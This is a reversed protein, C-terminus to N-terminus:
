LTIVKTLPSAYGIPKVTYARTHTLDCLDGDDKDATLLYPVENAHTPSDWGDWLLNPLTQKFRAVRERIRKDGDNDHNPNLLVQPVLASGDVYKNCIHLHVGDSDQEVKTIIAQNINLDMRDTVAQISDALVVVINIPMELHRYDTIYTSRTEYNASDWMGDKDFLIPRSPVFGGFYSAMFKHLNPLETPQVAIFVDIDATGGGHLLHRLAGGCIDAKFDAGRLIRAVVLACKFNARFDQDNLMLEQVQFKEKCEHLDTTTVRKYMRNLHGYCELM